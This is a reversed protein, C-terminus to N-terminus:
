GKGGVQQYRCWLRKVQWCSLQLMAAADTLMLQKSGVRGMIEVRELERSSM